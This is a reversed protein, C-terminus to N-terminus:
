PARRGAGVPEHPGSIGFRHPGPVSLNQLHEVITNLLDGGSVADLEDITLEGATREGATECIKKMSPLDGRPASRMLVDAMEFCSM